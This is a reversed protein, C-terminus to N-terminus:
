DRKRGKTKVAAVIPCILDVARNEDVTLATHRAVHFDATPKIVSKATLADSAGYKTFIAQLDEILEQASDQPLKDGDVKLEFSQRFFRQTREEGLTEILDSEAKETIARYRGKDGFSVLLSNGSGDRAEISSGVDHRGSFLEFYHEQARGRIESKKINASAELAELEETESLIDSVLKAIDGDPDPLVPYETKTKGSSKSAIGGLNLKVIGVPKAPPKKTATAMTTLHPAHGSLKLRGEM